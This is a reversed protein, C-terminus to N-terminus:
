MMRLKALVFSFICICLRFLSSIPIVAFDLALLLSLQPMPKRRTKKGSSLEEAAVAAVVMGKDEEEEEGEDDEGDVEFQILEEFFMLLVLEFLGIRVLAWDVMEIQARKRKRVRRRKVREVKSGVM